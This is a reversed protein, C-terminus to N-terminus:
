FNKFLIIGLNSVWAVLDFSIRHSLPSQPLFLASPVHLEKRCLKFDPFKYSMWVSIGLRSNTVDVSSHPESFLDSKSNHKQSDDSHHHYKFGRSHTWDDLFFLFSPLPPSVPVWPGFSKSKCTFFGVGCEQSWASLKFDTMIPINIGHFGAFM